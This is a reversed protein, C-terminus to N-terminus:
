REASVVHQTSAAPIVGFLMKISLSVLNCHFGVCDFAVFLSKIGSTLNKDTAGVVKSHVHPLWLSLLLTQCPHGTM